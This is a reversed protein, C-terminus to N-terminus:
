SPWSQPDIDFTSDEAYEIGAMKVRPIRAQLEDIHALLFSGMQHIIRRVTVFIAELEAHHEPATFQKLIDLYMNVSREIERTRWNILRPTLLNKADIDLYYRQMFIIIHHQRFMAQDADQAYDTLVELVNAYRARLVKQKNMEDYLTGKLEQPARQMLEDLIATAQQRLEDVLAPM